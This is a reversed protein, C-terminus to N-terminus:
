LVWCNNLFGHFFWDKRSGPKRKSESEFWASLPCWQLLQKREDITLGVQLLIAKYAQFPTQGCPVSHLMRANLKTWSQPLHTMEQFCQVQCEKTDMHFSEPNLFSVQPFIGDKSGRCLVVLFGWFTNPLFTSFIKSSRPLNCPARFTQLLESPVLKVGKLTAPFIMGSIALVM